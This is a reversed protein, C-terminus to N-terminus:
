VIYKARDATCRIAVNDKFFPM